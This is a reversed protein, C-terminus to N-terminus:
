NRRNPSDGMQEFCLAGAGVVGSYQGLGSLRIPIQKRIPMRQKSFVSRAPNLILDGAAAVGGGVVIVEPNFINALNVLGLGLLEGAEQLIQLALADQNQAKLAIEKASSDPKLCTPHRTEDLAKKLRNELATGSVYLEWCGRNGCACWDGQRDISMHGFYSASGLTEPLLSGDLIVGGGIGTGLTISIVNQYPQAAGFRYEGWAAAIGDNQILVPLGFIEKLTQAIPFGEFNALYERNIVRFCGAASDVDMTSSIGIGQLSLHNRSAEEILRRIFDSLTEVLRGPEAHLNSATHREATIAGNQKVLAGKIATQGFDVGIVAASQSGM